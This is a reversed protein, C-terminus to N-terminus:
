TYKRMRAEYKADSIIESVSMIDHVEVENMIAMRREGITGARQIAQM